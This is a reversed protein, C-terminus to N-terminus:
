LDTAILPEKYLINKPTTNELIDLNILMLFYNIRM